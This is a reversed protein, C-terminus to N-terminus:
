KQLALPPRPASRQRQRRFRWGPLWFRLPRCPGCAVSDLRRYLPGCIFGASKLPNPPPPMAALAPIGYPRCPAAGASGLAVPAIMVSAPGLVSAPEEAVLRRVAFPHRYRAVPATRCGQGRHDSAVAALACRACPSAPLRLLVPELRAWGNGIGGRLEVCSAGELGAIGMVPPDGPPSFKGDVPIGDDPIGVLVGDAPESPEPRALGAPPRVGGGVEATGLSKERPRFAPSPPLPPPAGNSGGGTEEGGGECNAEVAPAADPGGGTM